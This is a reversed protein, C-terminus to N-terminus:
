LENKPLFASSNKMHQLNLYTSAMSNDAQKSVSQMVKENNYMMDVAEFNMRHSAYMINPKWHGFQPVDHMISGMCLQEKFYLPAWQDGHTKFLWNDRRLSGCLLEAVVLQFDTKDLAKNHSRNSAKRLNERPYWMQGVQWSCDKVTYGGEPKGRESVADAWGARHLGECHLKSLIPFLHSM